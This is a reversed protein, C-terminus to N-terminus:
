VLHLRHHERSPGHEAALLLDEAHRHRPQEIHWHGGLLALRQTLLLVPPPTWGRGNLAHRVASLLASRDARGLPFPAEVRVPLRGLLSRAAGLLLLRLRTAVVMPVPFLRHHMEVGLLAAAPQINGESYVSGVRGRGVSRGRVLTENTPASRMPSRVVFM